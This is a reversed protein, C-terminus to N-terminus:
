WHPPEYVTPLPELTSGRKLLFTSFSPIGM